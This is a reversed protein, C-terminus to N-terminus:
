KYTSTYAITDVTAPVLNNAKFYDLTDSYLSTRFSVSAHPMIGVGYMSGQTIYLLNGAADKLAFVVGADYLLEDSENEIAVSLYYSTWYADAIEEYKGSSPLRTVDKSIEERGNVTLNYGAIYSPESAAEVLVGKYLYGTEGPALVEPYCGNVEESGIVNGSADLLELTGSEFEVPTNGSNVLRAYVTGQYYSSYPTVQFSAQAVTLKGPGATEEVPVASEPTATAGQVPVSAEPVATAESEPVSWEPVASSEKAKSLALMLLTNMVEPVQETMVTIIRPLGIGIVEAMLPVFDKDSMGVHVAIKTKGEPEALAAAPAPKTSFQLVALPAAGGLSLGIKIVTAQSADTPAFSDLSLGANLGGGLIQLSGNTQAGDAMARTDLTGDLVLGDTSQGGRIDRTAADWDAVPGEVATLSMQSSSGDQGTATRLTLLFAMDGLNASELRLFSGSTSTYLRLEALVAPEQALMADMQTLVSAIQETLNAGEGAMKLFPELMQLLEQDQQLRALLGRALLLATHTTLSITRCQTYAATGDPTFTGEETKAEAMIKELALGIDQGYPMLLEMAKTTDIVPLELGSSGALEKLLEPGVALAYGPFLSSTLTIGSESTNILFNAAEADKLRLSYAVDTGGATIVASSQNVLGLVASVLAMEEESTIGGSLQMMSGITESDLTLSITAEMASEATAGTLSLLMLLATLLSLLKKM